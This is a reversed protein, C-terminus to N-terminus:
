ISQVNFSHKLHSLDDFLKGLFACSKKNGAVQNVIHFERTRSNPNHVPAFKYVYFIRFVNERIIRRKFVKKYTLHVPIAPNLAANILSVTFSSFFFFIIAAAIKDM